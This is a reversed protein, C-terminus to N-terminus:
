RACTGTWGNPTGAALFWCCPRRYSIRLLCVLHPKLNRYSIRTRLCTTSSTTTIRTVAVLSSTLRRISRHLTLGADLNRSLLDYITAAGTPIIDVDGTPPMLMAYVISDMHCSSNIALGVCSVRKMRPMAPLAPPSSLLRVAPPMYCAFANHNLANPSSLPPFPVGPM